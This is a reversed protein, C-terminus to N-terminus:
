VLADLIHIYMIPWSTTTAVDICAVRIKSGRTCMYSAKLRCGAAWYRKAGRRADAIHHQRM